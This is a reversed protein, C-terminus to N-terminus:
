GWRGTTEAFLVALVFLALWVPWLSIPWPALANWTWTAAGAATGCAGAMLLVTIGIFPADSPPKRKM